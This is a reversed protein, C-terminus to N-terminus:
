IHGRALTQALNSMGILNPWIADGVECISLDLERLKPFAAFHALDASSFTTEFFCVSVVNDDDDVDIDNSRRVFSAIARDKAIQKQWTVLLIICFALVIVSIILQSLSFQFKITGM